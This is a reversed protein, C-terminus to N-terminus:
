LNVQLLAGVTVMGPETCVANSGFLVSNEVKRYTALMKLPENDIVTTKQDITIVQCRGCPKINDFHVQNNITFTGFSDEIHPENTEIVINPRFRNMPIPQSLKTNLHDLSATGAILYPYGDALSAYIDSNRKTAHHSRSKEDKLRVLRVEMNLWSSLSASVDRNVEITTAQDDWVTTQIEDNLLENEGFSVKQGQYHIHIINDEIQPFFQSMQAFERQSLFRGGENILMWRRDYAFGIPRAMAEQVSIGAMGKIPYIILEKITFTM